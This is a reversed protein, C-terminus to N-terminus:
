RPVLSEDLKKKKLMCRCYQLDFPFNKVGALLSTQYATSQKLKALSDEYLWVIRIKPM